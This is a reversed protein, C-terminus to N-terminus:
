GGMMPRTSMARQARNRVADFMYGVFVMAWQFGGTYSMSFFTFEGLNSVTLILFAANGIYCRRVNGKHLVILIYLMFISFGVVGTEELVASIWVSKEVPASLVKFGSQLGIMSEDVQFGNGIIPSKRFNAIGEDWKGQRTSTIQELTVDKAAVGGTKVAFRGIDDRISPVALVLILGMVFTLLFANVIKSKWSSELGRAKMTYYLLVFVGIILSGMATRSSTQYILIPCIFILTLYLKDARRISLILDGLLVVFLIVVIPGLSQSHMTMGRFLSTMAMGSKRAEEFERGSLQGIAPFPLLALSGGIFFLAVALFAARVHGNVSERKGFAVQNAVGFYAIYVMIFLFIKMLSIIANWGQLSSVVAVMLYPIILLLPKVEPSNRQGACRLAMIAGLVVLMSRQAMAFPVNKPMLYQNGMLMSVTLLLYFFLDAVNGKLLSYFLFPIVVLFGTGNTVKMSIMVCILIALYKFVCGTQYHKGM